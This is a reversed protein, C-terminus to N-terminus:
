SRAPEPQPSAPLEFKLHGVYQLAHNSRLSPVDGERMHLLDSPGLLRPDADTLPLGARRYAELVFQSCFFRDNRGLGLQVAGVGQLCIDRVLSPTLPLECLRRELSFPAQLMVGVLNYRQGVTEQVFAQMRPLHQPLLLPHRFAVVAMEEALLDRVSRRRIGEGVAEAIQGDGVYLSAHSVPSLTVLRIGLSNLGEASSLLIDGPRLVDADVSLGGNRPNLGPNQMELRPRAQEGDAFFRTACGGLLAPLAFLLRRRALM